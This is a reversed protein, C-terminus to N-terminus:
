VGVMHVAAGTPAKVAYKNWGAQENMGDAWIALREFSDLMTHETAQAWGQKNSKRILLTTPGPTVVPTPNLSMMGPLQADHLPEAMPTGDEAIYLVDTEEEMEALYKATLADVEAPTPCGGGGMLTQVASDRAIDENSITM